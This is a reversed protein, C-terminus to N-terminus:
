PVEVPVILPKLLLPEVVFSLHPCLYANCKVLQFELIQGFVFNSLHISREFLVMAPIANHAIGRKRLSLIVGGALGERKLAAM